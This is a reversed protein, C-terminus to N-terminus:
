NAICKQLHIYLPHTASTSPALIEVVREQCVTAIVDKLPVENVARAWVEVEERAALLIIGHRNPMVIYYAGTEIPHGRLLMPAEMSESDLGFHYGLPALFSVIDQPHRGMVQSLAVRSLLERGKTLSEELRHRMVKEIQLLFLRAFTDDFLGARVESLAEHVGEIAPNARNKDVVSVAIAAICMDYDVNLSCTYMNDVLTFSTTMQRIVRRGLADFYRVQFQVAPSFFKVVPVEYDFYFYVSDGVGLSTLAFQKDARRFGSGLIDSVKLPSSPSCYIVVDVLKVEFLTRLIEDPLVAYQSLDCYQIRVNLYLTLDSLAGFDPPCVPPQIVFIDFHTTPKFVQQSAFERMKGSDDIALVATLWVVPIRDEICISNLANLVSLYTGVVPEVLLGKLFELYGWFLEREEELDFFLDGIPPLCMDELDRATVLSFGKRDSRILPFHLGSNVVFVSFRGSGRENAVLRLRDLVLVYIPKSLDSLELVLLFRDTRRQVPSEFVTEFDASAPFSFAEWVPATVQASNALSPFQTTYATKNNCIPCLWGQGDPCHIYRTTAKARCRSCGPAAAFNYPLFPPDPLGSPFPTVALCLPIRLKSFNRRQVPILHHTQGIYNELFQQEATLKQRKGM